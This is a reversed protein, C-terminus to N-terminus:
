SDRLVSNLKELVEDILYPKHIYHMVGTQLLQEKVEPQLYGTAVIIRTEPRQEKLARIVDAGNAKPLNLDLLVLDIKDKHHRFLDIAQEGNTAAVVHYGSQQLLESLLRVMPAEDEVILVTGRQPSRPQAPTEPKPPEPVPSKEDAAVVPLYIRFTTGQQLESEV